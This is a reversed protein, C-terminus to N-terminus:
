MKRNEKKRFTIALALAHVPYDKSKSRITHVSNAPIHILDGPYVDREDGEVQMIGRGYLVYYFEESNHSHPELAEGGKVEFEDIFELYGGETEELLEDRHFMM